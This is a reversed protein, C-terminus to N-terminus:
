DDSSPPRNVHTDSTIELPDMSDLRIPVARQSNMQPSDSFDDRSVEAVPVRNLTPLFQSLPPLGKGRAHLRQRVSSLSVVARYKESWYVNYGDSLLREKFSCNGEDYFFSGYLTGDRHMCLYRASRYGKIAVVGPAVSENMASGEIAGFSKFVFCLCGQLHPCLSQANIRNSKSKNKSNM